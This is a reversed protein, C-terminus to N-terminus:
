EPEVIEYGKARLAALYGDTAFLESMLVVAMTSRNKRLAREAEDLWAQTRRVKYDLAQQEGGHMAAACGEARFGDRSFSYLPVLERLAPIDGVAWANALQLVGTGGDGITDVLRQLCVENSAHQWDKLREEFALEPAAFYTVRLKRWEGLRAATFRVSFGSLDLTKMAARVLRNTASFPRWAELEPKGFKEATAEVRARLEPAIVDKLRVGDPLRAAKNLTASNGEDVWWYGSYDLLLEQSKRLLREFEKSKWKLKRPFPSIEGLIWMVNDGSSVKWLAPGSHVGTVLVVAMDSDDSAPISSDAAADDSTSLVPVLLLVLGLVCNRM